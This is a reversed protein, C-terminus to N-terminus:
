PDVAGGFAVWYITGSSINVNSSNGIQFGNSQLTQIHNVANAIDTFYSSYDEYSETLNYVADWASTANKIFVFDPTFGIGTINRNDVENGTYSGVSMAGTVNKFAVFQYVVGNSNVQAANGITFGTADLTKFLTGNTIQVTATFFQGINNGMASSRWVASQATEAKILVLDPQFGVSTISRSASGNGTYSGVCFTGTSSSDSGGFAVWTWRVGATNVNASSSVTFGDSNLTIQSATNKATATFYNSNTSTMASSTWVAGVGAATDAKVIVLNPQFGLGTISLNAGTGVYYGTQMQFTAAHTNSITPLLLFIQLFVSIFCAFILVFLSGPIFPVKRFYLWINTHIKVITSM